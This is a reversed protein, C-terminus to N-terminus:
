KRAEGPRATVGRTLNGQYLKHSPVKPFCYPWQHAEQGEDMPHISFFFCCWRSMCSNICIDMDTRGSGRYFLELSRLYLEREEPSLNAARKSNSNRRRRPRSSALPSVLKDHQVKSHYKAFALYGEMAPKMIHIHFRATATVEQDTMRAITKANEEKREKQQAAYASWFAEDASEPRPKASLQLILAEDVSHERITLSLASRLLSSRNELFQQLFVPSARILQRVTFLNMHELVSLRLEAPIAELNIM